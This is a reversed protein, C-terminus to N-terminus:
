PKKLEEILARRFAALSRATAQASKEDVLPYTGLPNDHHVLILEILSDAYEQAQTESLASM